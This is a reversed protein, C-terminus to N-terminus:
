PTCAFAPACPAVRNRVVLFVEWSAQNDENDDGDDSGNNGNLSLNVYIKAM